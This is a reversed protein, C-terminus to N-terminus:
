IQELAESLAALGFPKSLRPFSAVPDAAGTYGSILLIPM